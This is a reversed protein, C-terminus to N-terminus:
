HGDGMYGMVGGLVEGAVRLKNDANFLRKHNTERNKAESGRHEGTQKKFEM